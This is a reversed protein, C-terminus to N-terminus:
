ILGAERLAEAMAGGLGESEEPQYSITQDGHDRENVFQDAINKAWDLPASVLVWDESGSGGNTSAKSLKRAESEFNVQFSPWRKAGCGPWYQQVLVLEKQPIEKCPVLVIGYRTIAVEVKDLNSEALSTCALLGANGRTMGWDPAFPVLYNGIQIGATVRNGRLTLATHVTKVAM